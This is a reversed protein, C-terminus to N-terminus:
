SLGWVGGFDQNYALAAQGYVTRMFNLDSLMLQSLADPVALTVGTGNDSTSAVVGAAVPKNLGFDKRLHTFSGPEPARGPQDPTIAILIHTGANYVALTYETGGRTRIVWGIARQLAYGLFPSNSPLYAEPIDAYNQVFLTFDPLNPTDPNAFV